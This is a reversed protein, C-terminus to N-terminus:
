PHRMYQLAAYGDGPQLPQPVGRAAHPQAATPHLSSAIHSQPAQAYAPPQASSHAALQADSVGIPSRPPPPLPSAPPPVNRTPPPPIPGEPPPPPLARGADSSIKVSPTTSTAVISSTLVLGPWPSFTTTVAGAENDAGPAGSDPFRVSPLASVGAVAPNDHANSMGSSSSLYLRDMGLDLRSTDAENDEVGGSKQIKGWNGNANKWGTKWGASANKASQSAFNQVIRQREPDTVADAIKSQSQKMIQVLASRQTGTLIPGATAALTADFVTPLVDSNAIVDRTWKNAKSLEQKSSAARTDDGQSKRLTITGLLADIENCLAADAAGSLALQRLNQRTQELLFEAHSPAAAQKQPPQAPTGRTTSSRAM